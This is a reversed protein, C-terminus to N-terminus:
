RKKVAMILGDRLPVISSVFDPDERIMRTVQRVGITEPDQDSADFIRGHWLINDILLVGGPRLREKIVPISDPYGDKDIDNFIIDFLGESRKLASVAESVEFRVIDSYGAEAIYGRADQSLQEDWVTHVVEGGGNQKVARAFWLTSYGYGSGLEFVRRAGVLLAVQELFRGAVPGIIPFGDRKAREEMKELIPDHHRAFDTLHADVLTHLLDM